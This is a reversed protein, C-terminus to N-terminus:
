YEIDVNVNGTGDDRKIDWEVTTGNELEATCDMNEKRAWEEIDKVTEIVDTYQQWEESNTVEELFEGLTRGTWYELGEKDPMRRHIANYLLEVLQENLPQKLINMVNPRDILTWIDFLHPIYEGTFYGIGNNGWDTGWSNVFYIRGKNLNYGHCYIAHGGTDEGDKPPRVKPGNIWGESSLTAGTEFGQNEYIMRALFDISTGSYRAYDKASYILANRLAEKTPEKRMAKETAPYSPCLEETCVGKEKLLKAGRRSYAGGTELHILSYIFRASLDTFRSVDFWNKVEAYKSWAQGVCSGSGNQDEIKLKEEFDETAFYIDPKKETAAGMVKEADYDKYDTPDKRAANLKVTIEAPHM